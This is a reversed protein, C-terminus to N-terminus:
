TAHIMTLVEGTYALGDMSREVIFGDLNIDDELWEEVQKMITAVNIM